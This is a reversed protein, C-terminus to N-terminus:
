ENLYAGIKILHENIMKTIIEIKEYEFLIRCKRLHEHIHDEIQYEYICGGLGIKNNWCEGFAVIIENWIYEPIVFDIQNCVIQHLYELDIVVSNSLSLIKVEKNNEDKNNMTNNGNKFRALIRLANIQKKTTLKKYFLQKM